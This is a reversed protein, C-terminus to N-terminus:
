VDHDTVGFTVAEHRRDLLEDGGSLSQQLRFSCRYPRRIFSTEFGCFKGWGTEPVTTGRKPSTAVKMRRGSNRLGASTSIPMTPTGHSPPVVLRGPARWPGRWIRSREVIIRRM